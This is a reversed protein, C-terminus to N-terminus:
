RERSVHRFMACLCRARFTHAFVVTFKNLKLYLRRSINQKTKTKQKKNQKQKPISKEHFWIRGHPFLHIVHTRYMTLM